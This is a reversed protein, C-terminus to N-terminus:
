KFIEKDEIWLGYKYLKIWLGGHDMNELNCTIANQFRFFGFFVFRAMTCPTTTAAGGAGDGAKIRASSVLPPSSARRSSSDDVIFPPLPATPTTRPEHAPSENAPTPSAVLPSFSTM